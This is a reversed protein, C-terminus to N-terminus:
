DAKAGIGKATQIAPPAAHLREMKIIADYGPAVDRTDTNLDRVGCKMTEISRGYCGWAEGGVAPMFRASFVPLFKEIYSPMRNDESNKEAHLNGTLVVVQHHEYQLARMAINVGMMFDRPIMKESDSIKQHSREESGDFAFLLVPYGSMKLSREQEVLAFIASSAQGYDKATTWFEAALLRERDDATGQSAMFENFHAQMSAPMELGLIVARKEKAFHCVLNGVFAPMEVSGHIEGLLIVRANVSSLFTKNIAECAFPSQRGLLLIVVLSFKLLLTKTIRM